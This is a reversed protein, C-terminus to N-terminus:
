ATVEAPRRRRLQLGILGFGILMMAWTSTEPVASITVTGNFPSNVDYSATTSLTYSTGGNGYVNFASNTGDAPYYSPDTAYFGIGDNDLSYPAHGGTSLIVNDFVFYGGPDNPPTILGTISYTTSPSGETVTGTIGTVDYNTGVLTATIVASVDFPGCCGNTPLVTNTFTLDFVAAKAPTSAFIAATMALVAALILNKTGFM